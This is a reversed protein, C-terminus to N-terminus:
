VFTRPAQGFILNVDTPATPRTGVDDVDPMFELLRASLPYVPTGSGDERVGVPRGDWWWAGVIEVMSPYQLELDSLKERIIQLTEKSEDLNVSFLYWDRFVAGQTLWRRDRRFLNQVTGRDHMAAFLRAVWNPVPGNYDGDVADNWTLRDVIADRAAQRLAIWINIQM